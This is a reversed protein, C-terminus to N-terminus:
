IAKASRLTAIKAADYGIDALVADTDAGVLPAPGDPGTEEDSIKFPTDCYLLDRGDVPSPMTRLTNRHALQPDELVDPLTLVAAAPVGVEAFRSEWTKADETALGAVVAAVCEAKNEIRADLTTFRPDDVLEPRGIVPWVKACQSDVAPVLLLQGNKTPFVDSVPNGTLSQNGVLQPEFGNATQILNPSMIAAGVAQMSLDIYGGKGTRERKFLAGAIAFAATISSSMDCVIAGVRMPGTEKTGTVAMFGSAAQIAPDYAAAHARPGTQGFGSVSCFVLKPNIKKLDEWGLGMRKMTGAKFNEVVVDADRVLRHIIEKADPHKLDLTMSRKGANACLYIASYGSAQLDKDLRYLQRGQDGGRPHELKIVEAGQLALQYTAFPGAIAQTFDIVRIGEFTRM